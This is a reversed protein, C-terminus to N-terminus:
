SRRPPPRPSGSTDRKACMKLQTIKNKKNKEKNNLLRTDDPDDKRGERRILCTQRQPLLVGGLSMEAKERGADCKKFNSNKM